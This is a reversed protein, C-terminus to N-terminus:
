RPLGAPDRRAVEGLAYGLVLTAWFTTPLLGLCCLVIGFQAIVSALLYVVLALAYNAGNRQIFALNEQVEFAAAFRNSVAFRTFAAPLYIMLALSVLFFFGYAALIILGLLLEQADGTSEARGTLIGALGLSLAVLIPIGILPVIYGLYICTSRLGDVLMGGLDDWEPLPAAEGQASRRLVRLVYGGIFFGGIALFSLLGFLAGVLIKRVWDPDEFVFALSRGFDLSGSPPTHRAIEEPM